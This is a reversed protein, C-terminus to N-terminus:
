DGEADEAFSEHTVWRSHPHRRRRACAIRGPRESGVRWELRAVPSMHGDRHRVGPRFLPAPDCNQGEFILEFHVHPGRSIGTSGVESVIGGLPVREGAVVANASNHAYMTVWGGPHVMLVMNGYGPVESGAYAVIGSAAARVNWGIRGMIDVAQHYGGEGSGFGRVFWGNAVPWHLTGPLRDARGQAAARTWRAEVRGHLLARAVEHTGLGLNRARTLAREQLRTMRRTVRGGADQDVGPIWLRTGARLDRVGDEDLGNAAMIEAVPVGFSASLDWMTEGRNVTHRFGRPRSASLAQARDAEVREVQRETAGPIVLARGPRLLRVSDDDLENREMITDLSVEYIRAVDWLTEGDGLRHYAGDEIPALEEPEAVDAVVAVSTAGPIRITQGARLRRVDRPRLHNAEMIEIVPVSYSRAIEWLTQGEAIEHDIGPPLEAEEPEAPEEEM